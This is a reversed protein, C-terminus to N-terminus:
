KLNQGAARSFFRCEAYFADILEVIEGISLFEHRTLSDGTGSHRSVNITKLSVAGNQFWLWATNLKEDALEIELFKSVKVSERKFRRSGLAEIFEVANAVDADRVNPLTGQEIVAKKFATKNEYAM